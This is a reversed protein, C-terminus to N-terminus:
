EGLPTNPRHDIEVLFERRRGLRRGRPQTLLDGLAIVCARERPAGTVGSAAVDVVGHREVVGGSGGM